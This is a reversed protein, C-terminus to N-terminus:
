AEAEENIGEIALDNLLENADREQELTKALKEAVDNHELQAAYRRATGYGSIEYHDMRQAEAIIGADCVEPSTNEKLFDESEKILGEMAKCKHGTLKVGLDKGISELRTIQEKTEDLQSKLAKKLEKDHAKEVMKPLLPLQQNEASYLDKLQHEFLDSLSKLKSMNCYKKDQRVIHVVGSAVGFHANKNARSTL